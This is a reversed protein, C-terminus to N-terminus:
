EDHEPLYERGVWDAVRTRLELASLGRDAPEPVPTLLREIGASLTGVEVGGGSLSLLDAGQMLAFVMAGVDAASLSDNEARESALAGAYARVAEDMRERLSKRLSDDRAASAIFELTALGFGRVAAAIDASTQLDREATPRQSDVEAISLRINEDFVALFLEAKNQFNSYVAGKSYGAERAIQELTAAHYGVDAFVPRAAHMLASRTQHRRQARSLPGPRSAAPESTASM